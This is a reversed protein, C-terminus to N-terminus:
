IRINTITIKTSYFLTAESFKIGKKVRKEFQYIKM